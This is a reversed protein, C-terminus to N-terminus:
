LLRNIFSACAKKQYRHWSRWYKSLILKFIAQINRIELIKTGWPNRVLRLLNLKMMMLYVMGFLSRLVFSMHPWPVHTCNSPSIKLQCTVAYRSIITNNDRKAESAYHENHTTCVKRPLHGSSEQSELHKLMLKCDNHHCQWTAPSSPPFKLALLIAQMIQQYRGNIARKTCKNAVHILHRVIACQM